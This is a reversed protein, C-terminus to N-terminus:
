SGSSPSAEPAPGWPGMGGPGMGGPGYGGFGRGLGHGHGRVGFGFGRISRLEERDLKGDALLEDLSRLPHDVPLHSLESASLEGDELFTRLQERVKMMREERAREWEARREMRREEVKDIIADAQAQNITGDKVLDALVDGLLTGPGAVTRAVSEGAGTQALVITAGGVLLLGVMLPIGILRRM